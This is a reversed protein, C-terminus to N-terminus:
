PCEEDGIKNLMRAYDNKIEQTNLGLKEANKLGRDQQEEIVEVLDRRLGNVADCQKQDRTVGSYVAYGAAGFFM